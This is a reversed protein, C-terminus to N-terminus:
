RETEHGDSPELSRKNFKLVYVVAFGVKNFSMEKQTRARGRARVAFVTNVAVTGPCVNFDRAWRFIM